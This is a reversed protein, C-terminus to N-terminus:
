RRTDIVCPLLLLLLVARLQNSTLNSVNPANITAVRRNSHVAIIYTISWAHLCANFIREM